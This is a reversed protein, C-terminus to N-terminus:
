INKQRLVRSKIVEKNKKTIFMNNEIDDIFSAIDENYQDMTIRGLSVDRKMKDIALLKVFMVEDLITKIFYPTEYIPINNGMFISNYIYDMKKIFNIIDKPNTYEELTNILGLLDSKLYLEIMKEPGILTEINESLLAEVAYPHKFLKDDDITKNDSSIYRETLLHTYGETLGLGIYYKKTAQCFGCYCKESKADYYSSSLHFLEHPLTEEIKEVNKKDLDIRNNISSYEGSTHSYDTGFEIKLSNINNYFNTLNNEDNNNIIYNAFELVISGYPLSSLYDEDINVDHKDIIPCPLIKKTAMPLSYKIINLLRAKKETNIIM